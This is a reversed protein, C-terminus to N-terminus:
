SNYSHVYFVFNASKLHTKKNQQQELSYPNPEFMM